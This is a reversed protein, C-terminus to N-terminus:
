AGDVYVHGLPTDNDINLPHNLFRRADYHRRGPRGFQNDRRRLYILERNDCLRMWTAKSMRVGSIKGRRKAYRAEMTQVHTAVEMWAPFRYPGWPMQQKVLM